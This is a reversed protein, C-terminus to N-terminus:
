KTIELKLHLPKLLKLLTSLTPSTQSSEIRAVTSQPIGCLSALDRQSLGLAHRQQIIQTIIEAQAEIESLDNSRISDINNVHQKYDTWTKM